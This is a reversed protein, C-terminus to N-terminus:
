DRAFVILEIRQGGDQGCVLGAYANFSSSFRHGFELIDFAAHFQYTLCMADGNIIVKSVVWGGNFGGQGAEFGYGSTAGDGYEFGATVGHAGTGM